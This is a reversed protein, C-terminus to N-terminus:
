LDTVRKAMEMIRLPKIFFEKSFINIYLYLSFPPIFMGFDRVVLLIVRGKVSQRGAMGKKLDSHSRSLM